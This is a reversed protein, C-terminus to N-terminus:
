RRVRGMGIFKIDRDKLYHFRRNTDTYLSNGGDIIIDGTELHPLLEEIVQDVPQGAKVM